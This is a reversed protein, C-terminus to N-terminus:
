AAPRGVRAIPRGKADFTWSTEGFREHGSPPGDARDKAEDDAIQQLREAEAARNAEVAGALEARQRGLQAQLQAVRVTKPVGDVASLKSNSAFSLEQETRSIGSRLGRTGHPDRAGDLASNFARPDRRNPNRVRLGAAELAAASPGGEGVVPPRGKDPNPEGRRGGNRRTYALHGAVGWEHLPKLDEPM